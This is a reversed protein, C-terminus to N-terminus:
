MSLKENYVLSTSYLIYRKICKRSSKDKAITEKLYYNRLFSQRGPQGCLNKPRVDHARWGHWFNTPNEISTEKM